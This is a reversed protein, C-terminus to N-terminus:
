ENVVERIRDLIELLCEIDACYFVPPDDPHYIDHYNLLKERIKEEKESM